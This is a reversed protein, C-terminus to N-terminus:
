SRNLYWKCVIFHVLRLYEMQHSKYVQTVMAGLLVYLMLDGWFTREHEKGPLGQRRSM